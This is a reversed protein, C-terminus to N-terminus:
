RVVVLKVTAQAKGTLLRAWYIGESLRMGKSDTLNLNIQYRGADQKGLDFRHVVRGCRDYIVLSAFDA